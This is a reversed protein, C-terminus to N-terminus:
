YTGRVGLYVQNRTYNNNTGNNEDFYSGFSTYNWGFEASLYPLFQYAFRCQYQVTTQQGSGQYAVGIAAAQEKNLEPTFMALNVFFSQIVSFKETFQHDWNLNITYAESDSFNNISSQQVAVSFGVSAFSRDEYNWTAALNASPDATIELEGSGLGGPSVVDPNDKLGFNDNLQIGASGRFFLEPLFTHEAGLEIKVQQNDRWSGSDQAYDYIQYDFIFLGVTEPTFVLRFEQRAGNNMYNSQANSGSDITAPDDFPTQTYAGLSDSNVLTNNWRTVMSLRDSVRYDAQITGLNNIFGNVQTIPALGETVLQPLPQESYLFNDAVTMSFRPDFAYTFRGIFTHSYQLDYSQNISPWYTGVFDYRLAADAQLGLYNYGLSPQVSTYTSSIIDSTSSYPATLPNSDYGERLAVTATFPKTGEQGASGQIQGFGRAALWAFAFIIGLCRYFSKSVGPPGVSGAM